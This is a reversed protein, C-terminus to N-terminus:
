QSKQVAGVLSVKEQGEKEVAEIADAQVVVTGEGQCATVSFYM